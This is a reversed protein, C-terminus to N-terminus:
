EGDDAGGTQCNPQKAVVSDEDTLSYLSANKDGKKVFWDGYKVGRKLLAIVKKDGIDSKLAIHLMEILESQIVGPKEQLLKKTAKVFEQDDKTIYADKISIENVWVREHDYTFAKKREGGDRVKTSTLVLTNEAPGKELRLQLDVDRKWAFSGYFDTHGDRERHTHHNLLLTAGTARLKKCLSLFGVTGDERGAIFEVIAHSVSDIIILRDDNNELLLQEMILRMSITEHLESELIYLFNEYKEAIKHYGRQAVSRIGMDYDLIIISSVIGMSISRHAFGTSVLTKGVGADAFIMSIKNKEILNPYIFEQEPLDKVMEPTLKVKKLNQLVASPKQVENKDSKNDSDAISSKKCM